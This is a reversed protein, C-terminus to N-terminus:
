ARTSEDSDEVAMPIKIKRELVDMNESLWRWWETEQGEFVEGTVPSVHKVLTIAGDTDLQVVGERALSEALGRWRHVGRSFDLYFLAEQMLTQAIKTKKIKARVWRGIVNGKPRVFSEGKVKITDGDRDLGLKKAVEPRLLADSKSYVMGKSGTSPALWIELSCYFLPAQGGPTTKKEGWTVGVNDRTQNILVCTTPHHATEQVIKRLGAGWAESRGGGFHWGGGETLGKDSAKEAQTSDISDVGWILPVQRGEKTARVSKIFELGTDVLEEITRPRQVVLRDLNLGVALAFHTDRSGETESVLAIGGMDQVAKFMHDLLLSKGTSREGPIHIVRGYPGIPLGGPNGKSCLRDLALSGTSVWTSPLALATSGRETSGKFAKNVADSAKSILDDLSSSGHSREAVAVLAPEEGTAVNKKPRGRQAV